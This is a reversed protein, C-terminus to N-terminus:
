AVPVSCERKLRLLTEVVSFALRCGETSDVRQACTVEVTDGCATYYRTEGSVSSSCFIEGVKGRPACFAWDILRSGRLVVGCCCDGICAIYLIRAERKM